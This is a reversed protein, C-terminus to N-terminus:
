QRVRYFMKAATPAVTYPSAANPLDTWTVLDSSEQLFGGGLWQLSLHGETWALILRVGGAPRVILRASRSTVAGAQNTTVADYFGAQAPQANSLTLAPLTAGALNVGNFQWQYGLPATGTATVSFGAAQGQAVTIDSPQQTVVPPNTGCQVTVSFVRSAAHGFERAVCVVPTTGVPFVAGSPPSFTIIASSNGYCTDTGTASYTVPTAACAQVALNTPAQLNICPGNNNTGMSILASEGIGLTPVGPSWAGGAFVFADFDQLPTNWRLLMAGEIPAQGTINEFTGGGPDQRSLLTGRAMGCPFTPPLVPVHPTGIFTLSFLGAGGGLSLFAGNGPPLRGGPPYWRGQPASYTYSTPAIDQTNCDWFLLTSSDPMNPLVEDLTNSGHDLPNAILVFSGDNPLNITYSQPAALPVLAVLSMGFMVDDSNTRSQHVEVALVNDGAVLNTAPFDVVDMQGPSAPTFGLTQATPLNTPMRLRALEQGNLYFVAGDNVFNSCLLTVGATNTPFVFHTRFYYTILNTDIQLPTRIPEPFAVPDPSAGLLSQGAPWASDDYGNGRWAGALDAGSQNYRWTNSFTVLNLVSFPPLVTLRAAASNSGAANGILVGYFGSDGQQVNARTLSSTTAGPLNTGNFRWQYTFPAAGTVSVTFTVTSGNTVIRSAPGALVVPAVPSLVTLSANGSTVMGAANAVSVSYNGAQQPQLNSLTLTAQTAGAIPVGNFSWAYILPPTGTAGVIFTVTGGASNTHSVPQVTIAPPNLVTLLANTSITVGGANFIRVSYAGADASQVNNLSLYANTAYPLDAGNAVWQYQLPPLGGAGVFFNVSSGAVATQTQPQSNIFISPAQTVTLSMPDSYFTAGSADTVAGVISYIGNAVGSLTTSFPPAGATFVITENLYFSVQTPTLNTDVLAALDFNAPEGLVVGDGPGILIIPPLHPVCHMQDCCEVFNLDHTTLECCLKGKVGFQVQMQVNTITRAREPMLAPNLTIVDPAFTLGPKRPVLTVYKVPLASHNTLTFTWAYTNLQGAVASIQEDGITFCCEPLSACQPQACPAAFFDNSVSVTFNIQAPGALNSVMLTTSLSAIQGPAIQNSVQILNPSAWVGPPFGGLNVYQIANTLNNQLSFQLNYSQGNRCDLAVDGIKVCPCDGSPSDFLDPFNLDGNEWDDFLARFAPRLDCSEWLPFRGSGGNLATARQTTQGTCHFPPDDNCFRPLGDQRWAHDGDILRLWPQPSPHDADPLSDIMVNQGAQYFTVPHCLIDSLVHNLEPGDLLLLKAMTITNKIPAFFDPDFEADDVLRGCGPPLGVEVEHDSLDFGMLADLRARDGPKFLTITVNGIPPPFTFPAGDLCVWRSPHKLFEDLADIDVGTAERIKDNILDVLYQKLDTLAEKLPNLPLEIVTLIEHLTDLVPTIAELVEGVFDPLGIMSLLHERIFDEAQEYTVKTLGIGHECQARPSNPDLTDPGTLGCGITNDNQVDRRTQPDFLGKTTALGLESWHVLGDNIDEIWANVYADLVLLALNELEDAVFTVFADVSDIVVNFGLDLLSSPCDWLDWWEDFDCDVNNFAAVTDAYANLVDGLPDTSYAAFDRLDDRMELFFGILPGRAKGYKGRVAPQPGPNDYDWPTAVAPDVLTRYIFKHPCDYDHGPTSDDSVDGDPLVKRTDKDGDWGPTADGIYSEVMVHKFAIAAATASTPIDSFSPFVGGSFDNILTHGWMDGAAHTLFGYTFALIQSRETATYSPDTQAAWAHDLLHKLWAGTQVPHIVAQGYTLDPFGDPGIVGANYFAPWDRLAAVVEPRLSYEHGNITVRGNDIADARAQDGTFNHTYPKWAMVAQPWGLM